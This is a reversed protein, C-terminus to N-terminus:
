NTEQMERVVQLMNAAEQDADATNTARAMAPAPTAAQMIVPVSTQARLLGITLCLAAIAPYPLVKMRVGGGVPMFERSGSRNPLRQSSPTLRQRIIPLRSRNRRCKTSPPPWPM